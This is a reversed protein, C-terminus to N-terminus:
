ASGTTKFELRALIRLQYITFGILIFALVWAMATAPGFKLFVFAKYFIHLGAVETDAAGGTMVLINATAGFFSGIFVGIFNIILLPKLIPFVVFIIKDVFTAGDIDAAEYFDPSIGKLAALYILCGPGVGAWVMPIVCATMATSPDQLWRIPEDMTRFLASFWAGDASQLIPFAFQGFTYALGLGAIMCIAAPVRMAHYRLRMGFASFLWLSVAGCGIHAIAPVRMVVANLAGVESPEYFSKWLIVVVLGAIVAPLYYLTRFFVKGFPVEQLLIALIIPPLFTLSIVLFCYRIANWVTQWWMADWLVAGLNDVGVWHSNGMIRYDQFAMISGRLLPIYQWLLITGIAPLLLLYAWRYRRFGWKKAKVSGTDPPRFAKAVSRIVFTYVVCVVILFLVATIRQLRQEKPPVKGLIERRAHAAAEVLLGELIDLRAEDDDPLKGARALAQAEQLPKSLIDYAVNSHRGYPEPKGTAIAIEFTEKWGPPAIRLLDQYGFAELYVPNVFQGLGSEVLVRTKIEVAERSEYFRMFAWAADQVAREPIGVSLGMMRSNLEAGRVGTPGIPVPVMGTVDPNITAFMKEDIYGSAMAIEGRKWKIYADSSDRYVYGYRKTGGADVWPETALRNYFDLAVAAQRNGFAITWEDTAEDYTMFESGSSWLYSTWHWSEHKGTAFRTAYIGKGPDAVQRCIQYFDDWTWDPTPFAIGKADFLDKRYLIVRGLAGGYPMAWVRTVADPGKRKIVPWIKPNIRFDREAQPMASFYADDPNDLPHLFGEQIYTDSKRFNLYLVDPAVRGGIALLDSEVGEVKIGSFNHLQVEVNEWNHKGYLAPSAEYRARYHKAFYEPFRDTFARIAAVNARVSAETSTPDPFIWDHVTVHIVTKGNISEVHGAQAHSAFVGVFLTLFLLRKSRFLVCM